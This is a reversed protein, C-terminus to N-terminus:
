RTQLEHRHLIKKESDETRYQDSHFRKNEPKKRCRGRQERTWAISRAADLCQSTCRLSQELPKFLKMYEVFMGCCLERARRSCAKCSIPFKERWDSTIVRGNMSM